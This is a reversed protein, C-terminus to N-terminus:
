GTASNSQQEESESALLADNSRLPPTASILESDWGSYIKRFRLYGAKGLMFPERGETTMRPIKGTREYEDAALREDETLEGVSRPPMSKSNSGYVKMRLQAEKRQKVWSALQEHMKAECDPNGPIPKFAARSDHVYNDFFNMVEASPMSRKQWWTAIEEWEAEYENDFGAQQTVPKFKSGKEKMWAEFAALEEEFEQAASYLDNQCFTSARLFSASSQIPSKGTIRRVLRWEMQKRAQERMIHHLNGSTVKCTAIYANFADITEVKL